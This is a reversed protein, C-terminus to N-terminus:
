HECRIIFWFWLGMCALGHMISRYILKPYHAIAHWTRKIDVCLYTKAVAVGISSFCWNTIYIYMDLGSSNSSCDFNFIAWFAGRDSNKLELAHKTRGVNCASETITPFPTHMISQWECRVSGVYENSGKWSVPHGSGSPFMRCKSTLRVRFETAALKWHCNFVLTVRNGSGSSISHCEIEMPVPLVIHWLRVSGVQLQCM